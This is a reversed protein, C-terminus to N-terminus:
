LCLAEDIISLVRIHYSRLNLANLICLYERRTQSIYIVNNLHTLQRKTRYHLKMTRANTEEPFNGNFQTFVPNPKKFKKKSM